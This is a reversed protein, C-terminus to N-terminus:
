LGRKGQRTLRRLSTQLGTTKQAVTGTVSKLSKKASKVKKGLEETIQRVVREKGAM